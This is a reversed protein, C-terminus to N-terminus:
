HCIDIFVRANSLRHVRVLSEWCVELCVSPLVLSVPITCRRTCRAGWGSYVAPHVVRCSNLACSQARGLHSDGHRRVACAPQVRVRWGMRQPELVFSFYFYFLLSILPPLSSIDPFLYNAISSLLPFPSPTKRARAVRPPPLCFLVRHGPGQQDAGCWPIKPRSDPRPARLESDPKALAHRQQRRRRPSGLALTCRRPRPQHAPARCASGCSPEAAYVRRPAPGALPSSSSPPFSIPLLLFFSSFSIFFPSEDAPTCTSNSGLHLHQSDAPTYAHTLNITTQSPLSTNKGDYIGVGDQSSLLEEDNYLLALM